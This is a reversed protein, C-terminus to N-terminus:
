CDFVKVYACCIPHLQLPDMVPHKIVEVKFTNFPFRLGMVSFACEYFLITYVDYKNYIRDNESPTLVGWDSSLGAENFPEM